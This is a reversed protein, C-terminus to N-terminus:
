PVSTAATGAPEPKLYPDAPRDAGQVFLGLVGAVLTVGVARALWRIAAPDDAFPIM